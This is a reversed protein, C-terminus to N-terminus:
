DNRKQYIKIFIFYILYKIDKLNFLYLILCYLPYSFIFFPIILVQPIEQLLCHIILWVLILFYISFIPLSCELLLISWYTSLFLFLCLFIFLSLFTFTSIWSLILLLSCFFHYIARRSFYNLHNILKPYFSLNEERAFADFM